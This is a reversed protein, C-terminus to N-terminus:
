HARAHLARARTCLTSRWPKTARRWWWGPSRSGSVCVCSVVREKMFIALLGCASRYILVNVCGYMLLQPEKLRFCVRVILPASLHDPVHDPIPDPIHDDPFCSPPEILSPLYLLANTEDTLLYYRQRKNVCIYILSLSLSLTHEQAQPDPSEPSQWIWIVHGAATWMVDGVSVM